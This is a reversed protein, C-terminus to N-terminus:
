MQLAPAPPVQVALTAIDGVSLQQAGTSSGAEGTLLPQAPPLTM